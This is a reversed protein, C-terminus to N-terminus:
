SWNSIELSPDVELFKSFKGKKIKQYGILAIMAANDTSLLISPFHVKLGKRDCEKKFLERLHSNASVGGGVCIRHIGFKEAARITKQVLVEIVSSQFSACINSITKFDKPDVPNKRLYYLVATKLGSFSFDWTGELSPKPFPIVKSDGRGALLDIPPGGPYGLGLLTAVKDFAEGASDDRTGGLVHYQGYDEVLVLNTHGGSVILGVFPLSCKPTDLFSSFLHAELHNVGVLPVDWVWSLAEATMKGVLLSGVLGPGVTVAVGDVKKLPAMAREIISNIEEVHKRSAIEPVVGKFPKHDNVQSFIVNSHIKKGDVLVAASTEDCSTEIGLIYM